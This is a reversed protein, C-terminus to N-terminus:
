GAARRDVVKRNDIEPIVPRDAIWSCSCELQRLPCSCFSLPWVYLPLPVVFTDILVAISLGSFALVLLVALQGFLNLDLNARRNMRMVRFGSSSARSNTVHKLSLYPHANEFDLPTYVWQSIGLTM